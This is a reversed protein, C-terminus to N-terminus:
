EGDYFCSFKFLEAILRITSSLEYCVNKLEETNLGDLYNKQEDRSLDSFCREVPKADRTVEVYLRDLGRPEPVILSDCIEMNLM